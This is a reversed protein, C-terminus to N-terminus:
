VAPTGCEPCFKSGSVLEIGCKSCKCVMPSGCDHCFKSGKLVPSACKPCPLTEPLPPALQNGCGACFKASVTNQMGCKQCPTQATQNPSSQPQPQQFGQQMQNVMGGMMGGMGAGVGLGMGMGMGAGMIGGATGENGAATQMTDFTREQQYNYGIIDMEAKKALAAKLREVAPDNEPTNISNVFFNILKIGFPTLEGAMEDQLSQSISNLNASIELISIKDKIIQRAICDKVRTLLLGKFYSTMKQRDFEQMTGVLKILFDRTNEIQVAFQGFARVPLMINYKPDQLQIPDTTGWKVDLPMTKNVFWVEAAFPSKGGFPINVLKSLIPINETSLTHRGAKFPESMQGGKLLVAEQSESVILQTWTSLEESPFKWAYVDDTADWKVVDIVAM